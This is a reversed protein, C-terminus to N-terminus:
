AVPRTSEDTVLGLDVPEVPPRELLGVLQLLEKPWIWASTTALEEPTWWHHDLITLQEEETFGDTDVGFTDVQVGFFAESQELVEDSYGHRVLRRAVPGILQHHGILYGTEEALERVAAQEETEGPDVGGGPTVWWRYEPYGLDHDNFLLVRREADVVIVRSASRRRWRREAPDDPIVLQRHPSTV